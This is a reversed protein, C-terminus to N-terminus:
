DDLPRKVITFTDVKVIQQLEQGMAEIWREKKDGKLADRVPPEDAPNAILVNEIVEEFPIAEEYADAVEASEKGREHWAKYQGEVRQTRNARSSRRLKPVPDELPPTPDLIKSESIATDIHAIPGQQPVSNPNEQASPTTPTEGEIQVSESEPEFIKRKDVYVDREVSVKRQKPWYIRYGKSEEDYGVFHGEIARPQLKGVDLIKVWVRAGWEILNSLDPKLGTAMEYPTKGTALARTSSRNRLWVSHNVAEAWLYGPLKAQILMARAASIHTRNARESAGNSAPSDHVTLHRVTGQRELHETFDKSMFEGGRDSGFIKIAPIERQNKAWAEYRQYCSLAESKNALFYPHEEHTYKDQCPLFYKKKGLSEVEAPGWLDATVKDGYAKYSANDESRKPFSKRAAKAQICVECFTPKSAPNLDIGEVMGKHVMKLLDDHNIHGMRRHLEDISVLKSTQCASESIAVSFPSSSPSGSIRYLGRTEPIQAIPQYSPNYITCSTDEMLVKFRAHTMRTVSILTFALHPSYYVDKLLVNTTKSGNPFAIQMDGMGTASFVRGDAARIPAKKVVWFNIM